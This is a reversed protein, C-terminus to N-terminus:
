EIRQLSAAGSRYEDAAGYNGTYRPKTSGSWSGFALVNGDPDHVDFSQNTYRLAVTQNVYLPRCFITTKFALVVRDKDTRILDDLTFQM